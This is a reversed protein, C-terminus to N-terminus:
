GDEAVDVPASAVDGYLRHAGSERGPGLCDDRDVQETTRRRHRLDALKPKWNQLVSRLRCPRSQPTPPGSRKARGRREGEIGRLVEATQAIPARDGGVVVLDGLHRARQSKVARPVLSREVVDAVVGTEVLELCGDQADQQRVKVLPALAPALGGRCILIRAEGLM